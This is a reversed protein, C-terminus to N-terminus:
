VIKNQQHHLIYRYPPGFKSEKRAFSEINFIITLLSGFVLALALWADCRFWIFYVYLTKKDIKFRFWISVPQAHTMKISKKFM